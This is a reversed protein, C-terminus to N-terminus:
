FLAQFAELGRLSDLDSDHKSWDVLDPRLAFSQSLNELAKEPMGHLAYFCALNYLYTGRARASNDVTAMGEVVRIRAAEAGAPDGHKFLVESLHDQPHHYGTFAAIWALSRGDTWEFATEDFLTEESLADVSAVLHEFARAELDMVENWTKDRHIEFIEANAADFGETREPTLGDRASDLRSAERDKWEALHAAVDKMSWAEPTGRAERSTQSLQDWVRREERRGRELLAILAKKRSGNTM